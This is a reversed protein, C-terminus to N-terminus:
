MLIIDLLISQLANFRVYRSFNQNNVIGAYIAFFIILSRWVGYM